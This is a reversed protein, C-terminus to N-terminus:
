QCSEYQQHGAKLLSLIGSDNSSDVEVISNTLVALDFRSEEARLPCRAERRSENNHRTDLTRHLHSILRSMDSHGAPKTNVHDTLADIGVAPLDVRSEWPLGRRIANPYGTSVPHAGKVAM